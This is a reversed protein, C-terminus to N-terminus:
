SNIKFDGIAFPNSFEFEESYYFLHVRNDLVFTFRYPDQALSVRQVRGSMLFGYLASESELNIGNNYLANLLNTKIREELVQAAQSALLNQINHMDM